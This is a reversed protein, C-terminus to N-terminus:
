MKIKYMINRNYAVCLYYRSHRAALLQVFKLQVRCVACKYHPDFIVRKKEILTRM